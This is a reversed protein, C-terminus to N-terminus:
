GIRQRIGLCYRQHDGRHRSSDLQLQCHRCVFLCYLISRNRDLGADAIHGSFFSIQRPIGLLEYDALSFSVRYRNIELRNSYEALSSNFTQV